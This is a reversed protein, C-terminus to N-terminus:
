KAAILKGSKVQHTIINNIILEDTSPYWIKEVPTNFAKKIFSNSVGLSKYFDQDSLSFILKEEKTLGPFNYSHFGLKAGDGLIRKSGAMFAIVCASECKTSSYTLLKHSKIIDAVNKAVAIRGGHSSLSINWINDNQELIKKIDEDLGYGFYGNLLIEGDEVKISYKSFDDKGISIKMFEWFGPAIHAVFFLSGILTLQVAIASFSGSNKIKEKRASRWCGIFQWVFLAGWATVLLTFSRCAGLSSVNSPTLYDISYILLMTILVYHVWFSHLLSLNGRWHDKICNTLLKM